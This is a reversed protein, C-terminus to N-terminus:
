IWCWTAGVERRKRETEEENVRERREGREVEAM